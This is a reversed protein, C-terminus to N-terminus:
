EFYKRTLVSSASVLEYSDPYPHALLFSFLKHYQINSNKALINNERIANFSRNAFILFLLSQLM